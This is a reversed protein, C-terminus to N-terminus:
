EATGGERNCVLPFREFEPVVIVGFEVGDIPVRGTTCPVGPDFRALLAQNLETTEPLPDDEALGVAVFRDNREAVGIVLHGGNRNALGAIDRLTEFRAAPDAWNLREKFDLTPTEAPAALLHTLDEPRLVSRM